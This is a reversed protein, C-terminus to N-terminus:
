YARIRHECLPCSTTRSSMLLKRSATHKCHECQWIESPSMLLLSGTLICADIAVNCASCSASWKLLEPSGCHPCSLHRVPSEKTVGYAQLYHKYLRRVRMLLRLVQSHTSKDTSGDASTDAAFLWDNESVDFESPGSIGLQKQLAQCLRKLGNQTEQHNASHSCALAVLASVRAEGSLPLGVHGNAVPLLVQWMEKDTFRSYAEADIDSNEDVATSLLPSTHLATRCAPSTSLRLATQMAEASDQDEQLQRLALQLFHVTEALAWPQELLTAVNTSAAAQIKEQQHLQEQNATARAKDICLAARVATRKLVALSVTNKFLPVQGTAIQLLLKAAAFPMQAQELVSVARLPDKTAVKQAHQQLYVDADQGRQRLLQAVVDHRHLLTAVRLSEKMGKDTDGISMLALVASEADGREALFRGIKRLTAEDEIKKHQLLRRLSDFDRLQCLADTLLDLNESRALYKAAKRWRRRELFHRGIAEFAKSLSADDGAGGRLLQVVRLWDGRETNLQLAADRDGSAILLQEAEETRGTAAFVEARLRATANRDEKQSPPPELPRLRNVLRLGRWDRCHAYAREVSDLDLQQLAAEAFLRWLRVASESPQEENFHALLRLLHEETDALSDTHLRHRVNRLVRTEYEHLIKTGDSRQTAINAESSSAHSSSSSSSTVESLSCTSPRDSLGTSSAYQAGPRMCLLSLCKFHLAMCPTRLTEICSNEPTSNALLPTLCIGPKESIALAPLEPNESVCDDPWVFHYADERELMPASANGVSLSYVRLLGSQSLTGVFACQKSLAAYTVTGQHGHIMRKQVSVSVMGLADDRRVRRFIDRLSYVLLSTQTALVLTDERLCMATVEESVDLLCTGLTELECDSKLVEENVIDFEDDSLDQLGDHCKYRWLFLTRRDALLLVTATESSCVRPTVALPLRQSTLTSGRHDIIQVVTSVDTIDGDNCEFVCAAHSKATALCMMRTHQAEVDCTVVTCAGIRSILTAKQRGMSVLSQDASLIDCDQVRPLRLEAFYVFDAVAVAMRTANRGGGFTLQTAGPVPLRLSGICQGDRAFFRLVFRTAGCTPTPDTAADRGTVALFAGSPHWQLASISHLETHVLIATGNSKTSRLLQLTGSSSALALVGQSEDDHLWACHTVRASADGDACMEVNGVHEGRLATDLMWPAAGSDDEHTGSAPCLILKQGDPSWSLCRMNRPLTVSWLRQGDADGVMVVDDDYLVAIRQEERDWRMDVVAANERQNVMEELWLVDSGDLSATWVTILGRNDSTVLKGRRENWRALRLVGQHEVLARNCTLPGGGTKATQVDNSQLTEDIESPEFRLIKLAGDAGGCAIWGDTRHWALATVRLLAPLAIKKTLWAFVSM